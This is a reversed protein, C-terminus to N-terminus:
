MNPLWMMASALAIGAAMVLTLIVLTGAMALKAKPGGRDRALFYLELVALPVLYNGFGLAIGIPGGFIKGMSLTGQAAIVTIMMALRMFWVGSVVLFLRLAWRRHRAFDRARALRLAMVACGMVLLGNLSIAIWNAPGGVAGRGPTWVMYLGALSIAFATAIYFRGSWRHFAPAAARIRPVLQLLGGVTITFAFAVHLAVATNGVKDGEIVGRPLLKNWAAWDGGFAAGGYAIAIYAAFILQGAAAVLFWFAAARSLARDALAPRDAGAHEPSGYTVATSM